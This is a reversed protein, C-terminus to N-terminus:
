HETGLVIHQSQTAAAIGISGGVRGVAVSRGKVNSVGAVITLIFALSKHLREFEGLHQAFHKTVAAIGTMAKHFVFFLFMTEM